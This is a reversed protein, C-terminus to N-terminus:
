RMLTVDGKLQHVDGNVTEIEAHYFYVGVEAPQGKWNGDWGALATTGIAQWVPQGWRNRVQINRIIIGGSSLIRFRDNQGDGNPSFASPIVIRPDVEVRVSATDTCGDESIATVYYIRTSDGYFVQEYAQQDPFKWEPSWSIVGYGTNATTQLRIEDSQQVRYASAYLELHLERVSITRAFTDSCFDNRAVLVVDYSGTQNYIHQPSVTESITGDGFNWAYRSTGSSTNIFSVTEDRCVVAPAEFGAVARPLSEITVTVFTSCTGVRLEVDYTGPSLGAVITEASGETEFIINGAADRGTITYSGTDGSTFTITGENRGQCSPTQSGMVPFAATRVHFTDTVLTCAKRYRVWYTGVRSVTRIATKNGNDWEYFGGATDAPLQVSRGPCISITYATHVSDKVPLIVLANPLGHRALTGSLLTITNLVVQAQTGILNPNNIRHLTTQNYVSSTSAGFYLKGDPGEKIDGIGSGSQNHTHLVTASAQIAAPTTQTLDYQVLQSPSAYNTSVYLRTDDPSFCIGYYRTGSGIVVSNSVIGTVPDFDAMELLDTRGAALKRRDHSFKMMGAQGLIGTSGISIPSVVPTTNLGAATINYSRYESKFENRVVVWIDCNDGAVATMRESLSDGLLVARSTSVVDGLGNNLRIDVMSYYFRQRTTLDSPELSFVYYIHESGPLSVILAGQTTSNTSVGLAGNPMVTHNRNWIHEGNTYFLLRGAADCVSACGEITSNSFENIATRIPQPPITNFDLGARSGLAWVYGEKQAFLTHFSFFFLIFILYHQKM